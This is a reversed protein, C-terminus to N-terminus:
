IIHNAYIKKWETNQINVRNITDEPACLNKSKILDEM